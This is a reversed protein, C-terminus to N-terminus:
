KIGKVFTNLLKAQQAQLARQERQQKQFMSITSATSDTNLNAKRVILSDLYANAEEVELRAKELNSLAVAQGEKARAIQQDLSGIGAVVEPEPEEQDNTVVNYNSKENEPESESGVTKVWPKSPEQTVVVEEEPSSLDLTVRNFKPATQRIQDRTVNEGTLEKLVNVLPQGDDTWHEDNNADLQKLAEIIINSM